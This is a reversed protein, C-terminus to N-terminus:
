QFKIVSVSDPGAGNRRDLIKVEGPDV